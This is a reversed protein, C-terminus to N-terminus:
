NGHALEIKFVSQQAKNYNIDITGSHKEIIKKSYYLGIGFGKVDHKNGTPIRYFQEFVKDKHQKPIGAGNDYIEIIVKDKHCYIKTWCTPGGYKIANNYINGIANEFHFQDLTLSVDECSNEFLFETDPSIIRKKAILKELLDNLVISEKSLQLEENTLTSTELIKEVMTNLKVVQSNALDIYKESKEKDNLANFSKMAELATSITAIPTKFEHTINSILDNKVEALQKQRYITKLLYYISLIIAIILFLSFLISIMSNRLIIGIDNNFYVELKSRQPLYNSNARAILIDDSLNDLHYDKTKIETSDRFFRRGSKYKFGYTLDLDNRSIEEKFYGDLQELNLTDRSISIFVKSILSDINKPFVDNKTIFPFPHHDDSKKILIPKNDGNESLTQITSDIVKRIAGRSRTKFYITDNSNFGSISDNSPISIIGSRTLNAFYSEVANDLSLQVTSTLQAKNQNFEKYNWYVQMAITLLVTASIFILISKYKNENM